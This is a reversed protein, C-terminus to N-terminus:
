DLLGPIGEIVIRRSVFDVSRVVDAIVPILYERSGGRVIWTDHGGNFFTEAITGIARGDTTVVECGVAAFYYFHGPEPPPLDSELAYVVAGRLADAAAISDIEPLRIKLGGRGAPAAELVEFERVKGRSDILLRHLSAFGSLEPNDPVFRLAGKLGHPGTIFGLRVRKPPDLIPDPLEAQGHAIAENTKSSKSFSRETPEHHSPM